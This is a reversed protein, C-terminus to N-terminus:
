TFQTPLDELDVQGFIPRGGISIVFAAVVVGLVLLVGAFGV